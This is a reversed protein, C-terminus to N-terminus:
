TALDGARLCAPCPCLSLAAGPNSSRAKHALFPPRLGKDGYELWQSPRARWPSKLDPWEMQSERFGKGRDCTKIDWQDLWLIFGWMFLNRNKECLIRHSLLSYKNFLLRIIMDKSFNKFCDGDRGVLTGWLAKINYRRGTSNQLSRPQSSGNWSFFFFLVLSGNWIVNTCPQLYWVASM